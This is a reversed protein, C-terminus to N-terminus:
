LESKSLKKMYETLPELHETRIVLQLTENNEHLGNFTLLNWIYKKGNPWTIEKQTVSNLAENLENVSLRIQHIYDHHHKCLSLYNGPHDHGKEGVAKIHHAHMLHKRNGDYSAYSKHYTLLAPNEKSLCIQCHYGYLGRVWQSLEKSREQTEKHTTKRETNLESLPSGGDSPEPNLSKDDVRNVEKNRKYSPPKNSLSEVESIEDIEPIGEAELEQYRRSSTDDRINTERKTDLERLPSDGCSPEPSLKKDDIRAIKKKGKYPSTKNTLSEVNSIDETDLIEEAESEQCIRSSIDDTESINESGSYIDNSSDLFDDSDESPIKGIKKSIMLKELEEDRQLLILIIFNDLGQIGGLMKSLEIGLLYKDKQLNQFYLKQGYLLPEQRESVVEYGNLSYKVEIREVESVVINKIRSFYNKNLLNEYAEPETFYLYREIYKIRSKLLQTLEIDNKEGIIDLPEVKVAESIPRINFYEIFHSIKPIFNNPVKLFAIHEENKFLSYLYEDDNICVDQDNRWFKNKDTWLVFLDDVKREQWWNTNFLPIEIDPRMEHDLKKYIQLIIKDYKAITEKDDPIDEKSLQILRDVYHEPKPSGIDLKNVFFTKLGKYNNKLYAKTSGFILSYDSWFVDNSTFYENSASDYIIKHNSFYNKILYPDSSFNEDLYHYLKEILDRNKIKKNSCKVLEQLVIPISPKFIIGLDRLFQEKAKNCINSDFFKVQDGMLEKNLPNDLFVETPRLFSGETTPIWPTQRLQLIFTSYTSDYKEYTYNHYSDWKDNFLQFLIKIKEKKETYECKNINEFLKDFENCKYGDLRNEITLSEKVGLETFFDKWGKIIIDIEKELESLQEEIKAVEERNEMKWTDSKDMIKAKLNTIQEVIDTSDDELYVTSLFNDSFEKLGSFLKNLDYKSGYENPLYIKKPHDYYTFKEDKHQTRLFLLDALEGVSGKRKKYDALYHKIYRIHGQLISIAKKKWTEDKYIPLIYQEIIEYPDNYKIGMKSLLDFIRGKEDSKDILKLLEHDLIGVSNVLDDEFGYNMGDKNLYFFINTNQSSKFEGNNLKIIPLKKLYYVDEKSDVLYEYVSVLWENSKTKILETNNLFSFFERKTFFSIRLKSPLIGEPIKGSVVEKGSFKKVDENSVLNRLKQDVIIVDSPKAWSGSETLICEHENLSNYIKGIVPAFFCDNIDGDLPLYEYYNTKLIEDSKFFDVSDLFVEYIRDRIWKNWPVDETISERNATLQFDAQIIFKFGYNQTPLFSFVKQKSDIPNGAESVEFALIIETKEVDKRKEGRIYSPVEFEKRTVKYYSTGQTSSVRVLGNEELKIIVNQVNKCKNIIEIRKLKKLFLIFTPDIDKIKLLREKSEEKLPLFINTQNNDILEPIEDIWYPVIFGLNGNKAIHSFKFQFGNSFIHPEDTVKFVSKFGIGKEGIYGFKKQKTSEKVGCIACVNKENFGIENNQILISNENITFKLCPTLSGDYANDEANQILELIFHTEETNLDIALEELAGQLEKQLASFAEKAEEDIELGRLGFGTKKRYIRDIINKAEESYM